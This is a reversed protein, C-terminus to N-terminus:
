IIGLLKLYYNNILNNDINVLFFLSASERM